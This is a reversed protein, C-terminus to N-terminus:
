PQLPMDAEGGSILWEGEVKKWKLAFRGRTIEPPSNYESKLSLVYTGSSTGSVGNVIVQPNSLSLDIVRYQLIAGALSNQFESKSVEGLKFDKALFNVVGRPSRNNAADRIGDMAALIQERDTLPPHLRRWLLVGGVLVLLIALVPVYKRM